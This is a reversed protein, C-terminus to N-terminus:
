FNRSAPLGIHARIDAVCSFPRHCEICVFRGNHGGYFLHTNNGAPSTLLPWQTPCFQRADHASTFVPWCGKKFFVSIMTPRAGHLLGNPAARSSGAHLARHFETHGSIVLIRANKESHLVVFRLPEILVWVGRICVIGVRNAGVHVHKGTARYICTGPHNRQHQRVTYPVAPPIQLPSFCPQNGVVTCLPAPSLSM